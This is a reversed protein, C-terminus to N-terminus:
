KHFRLLWLSIAQRSLSIVYQEYGKKRDEDAKTTEKNNLDIHLNRKWMMGREGVVTKIIVHLFNTANNYAQITKNVSAM